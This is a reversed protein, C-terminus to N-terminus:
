GSSVAAEVVVRPFQQQPVPALDAAHPHQRTPDLPFAGAQQAARGTAFVSPWLDRLVSEFDIGAVGTTLQGQSPAGEASNM